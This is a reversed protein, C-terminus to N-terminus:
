EYVGCGREKPCIEAKADPKVGTRVICRCLPCLLAPNGGNFKVEAKIHGDNIMVRMNERIGNLLNVAEDREDCADDYAAEADIM